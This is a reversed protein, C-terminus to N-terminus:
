SEVPLDAAREFVSEDFAPTERADLRIHRLSEHRTTTALWAGLREPDRIRDLNELLRLWVTQVVDQATASSLWHARTTAWILGEFRDVIQGWASEDGDRASEVLEQLTASM